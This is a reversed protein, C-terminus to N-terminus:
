GLWPREEPLMLSLVPTVLVVRLKDTAIGWDALVAQLENLEDITIPARAERLSAHLEDLMVDWEGGGAASRIGEMDGASLRDAFLDPLRFTRGALEAENM